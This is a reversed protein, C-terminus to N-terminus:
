INLNILTIFKLMVMDNQYEKFLRNAIEAPFFHKYTIKSFIYICYNFTKERSIKDFSLLSSFKNIGRTSLFM